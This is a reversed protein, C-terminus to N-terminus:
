FQLINKFYREDGQLFNGHSSGLITVGFDPPIFKMKLPRKNLGTPSSILM